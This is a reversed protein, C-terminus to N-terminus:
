GSKISSKFEINDEPSCELSFDALNDLESETQLNKNSSVFCNQIMSEYFLTLYPTLAKGENNWCIFRLNLELVTGNKM